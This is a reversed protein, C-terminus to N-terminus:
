KNLKYEICVPKGDIAQVQVLMYPSISKLAKYKAIAYMSDSVEAYVQLEESM